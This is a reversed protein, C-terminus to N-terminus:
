GSAHNSNRAFHSRSVPWGRSPRSGRVLEHSHDAHPVCTVHPTRTSQLAPRSDAARSMSPWTPGRTPQSPHPHGSPSTSTALVHPSIQRCPIRTAAHPTRAPLTPHFQGTCPTRVTHPVTAPRRAPRSRAPTRHALRMCSELPSPHTLQHHPVRSASTHPVLQTRSVQTVAHTGRAPPSSHSRCTYPIRIPPAPRM